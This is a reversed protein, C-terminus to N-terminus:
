VGTQRSYKKRGSDRKCSDSKMFRSSFDHDLAEKSSYWQKLRERPTFYLAKGPRQGSDLDRCARHKEMFAIRSITEVNDELPLQLDDFPQISGGLTQEVHLLGTLIDALQAEQSRVTKSRGAHTCAGVRAQQFHGAINELPQQLAPRANGPLDRAFQHLPKKGRLLLRRTLYVFFFFSHDFGQRFKM